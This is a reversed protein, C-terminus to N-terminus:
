CIYIDSSKFLNVLGVINPNFENYITNNTGQYNMSVVGSGGFLDIFNKCERPFIPIIQKLLKHKNGMYFIPSDYYIEM